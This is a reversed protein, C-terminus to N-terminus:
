AAVRPHTTRRTARAFAHSKVTKVWDPVDEGFRQSARGEALQVWYGGRALTFPARLTGLHNFPRRAHPDFFAPTVFDSVTCEHIPYVGAQVPDCVETAVLFGRGSDSWSTCAPDCFLELVEHSLVSCVSYPGTLPHGGNDLVPKAGVVGYIGHADDTHWGLADAEDLSDLVTITQGDAPPNTLFAVPRPVLGWAPAVDLSIQINIATVMLRLEADSVLTSRNTVYIPNTM